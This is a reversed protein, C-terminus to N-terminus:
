YTPTGYTRAVRTGFMKGSVTLKNPQGEKFQINDDTFKDFALIETKTPDEPDVIQFLLKCAYVNCTGDTSLWASAGGVKRLADVVSIGSAAGNAYMWQTFTIEFSVDVSVDDGQRRSYNVGRNKVMNTPNHETFALNGEMVPIVVYLPTVPTGDLIILKGDRLNRPCNSM